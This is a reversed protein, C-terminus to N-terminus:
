NSGLFEIEVVGAGGAGGTTGGGGGSGFAGAVGTVGGAGGSAYRSAGGGGGNADGVGGAFGGCYGGNASPLNGQAGGIAGSTQDLAPEGDPVNIDFRGNSGTNTGGGYATTTFNPGTFSSNGGASGAAGGAGVVYAPTTGAVLWHKAEVFMGASGGRKSGGSTGGGGGAQVRVLHWGTITVTYTYSGATAQRVGRNTVANVKASLAGLTAADM